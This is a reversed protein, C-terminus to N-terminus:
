RTEDELAPLPADLSPSTGGAATTDAVPLDDVVHWFDLRPAIVRLAAESPEAVDPLGSMVAIRPPGQPM